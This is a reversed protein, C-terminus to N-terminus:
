EKIRFSSHPIRFARASEKDDPRGDAAAMCDLRRDAQERGVAAGIASRRERTRM